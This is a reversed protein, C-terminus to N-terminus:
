KSVKNRQARNIKKIQVTFRLPQNIGIKEGDGQYGYCLFSPMLFTGIEGLALDKVAYRLAPLLEEKDVLYDVNGLEMEDYIVVGELTQIKYNFQIQDGSKPPEGKSLKREIAVWYGASAATFNLTSDQSVVKKFQEQQVKNIKINRDISARIESNDSRYIPKRAVPENCGFLLLIFYFFLDNKRM